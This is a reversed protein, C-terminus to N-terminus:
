KVIERPAIRVLYGKFRKITLIVTEGVGCLIEFDCSNLTSLPITPAPLSWPVYLLMTLIYLTSVDISSSKCLLEATVFWGPLNEMSDVGLLSEHKRDFFLPLPAFLFFSFSFLILVSRMFYLLFFPFPYWKHRYGHLFFSNPFQLMWQEDSNLHIEGYIATFSAHVRYFAVGRM